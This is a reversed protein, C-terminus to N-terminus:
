NRNQSATTATSTTLVPVPDASGDPVFVSPVSRGEIFSGDGTYVVVRAM